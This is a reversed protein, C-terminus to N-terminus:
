SQKSSFCVRRLHFSGTFYNLHSQSYIIPTITNTSATAMTVEKTRTRRRAALFTSDSTCALPAKVLSITGLVYLGFM